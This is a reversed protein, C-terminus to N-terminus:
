TKSDRQRNRYTKFSVPPKSSPKSSTQFQNPVPGSFVSDEGVAATAAAAAAAADAAADVAAGAAAGAIAGAIAGRAASIAAGTAGVASAAGIAGNAVADAPPARLRM